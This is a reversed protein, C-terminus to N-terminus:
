KVAPGVPVDAWSAVQAVEPPAAANGMMVTRMGLEKCMQAADANKVIALRPGAFLNLSKLLERRADLLKQDSPFLRRGLVPGVPLQPQRQIWTRATRWDHATAAAPTLYVIRWGNAAAKALAASAKEDLKEAILTDDADVVLLPAEHPWVFIRGSDNVNEPRPDSSIYRVFFERMERKDDPWETAAQGVIDSKVQVIRREAGPVIPEQFVVQQGSLGRPREEDPPVFLQAVAMPSSETIYVGDFAVIQLSAVRAGPLLWWTLLGLIASCIVITALVPKWPRPRRQALTDKLQRALADAQESKSDSM